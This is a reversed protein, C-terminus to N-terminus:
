ELSNLLVEDNMSSTKQKNQYFFSEFLKSM